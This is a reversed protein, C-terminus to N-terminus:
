RGAPECRDIVVEPSPRCQSLAQDLARLLEHANKLEAPVDAEVWPDYSHDTSAGNARPVIVRFVPGDACGPCGYVRALELKTLEDRVARAKALGAASLRGHNVACSAAYPCPKVELRAATGPGLAGALDL